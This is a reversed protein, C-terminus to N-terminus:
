QIIGGGLLREGDYFAAFQGATVARQPQEFHVAYRKGDSHITAPVAHQRYRIKATVKGDPVNALWNPQRVEMESLLLDDENKTVVLQNKEIDKKVVFYPGGPLDLGQRQGVTYYFAGEHKGLVNGQMDVIEGYRPAIYEKLFDSLKVKGVFCIGQSDRRNANPLGLKQAIQRVQAKKYEGIPFLVNKLVEPRIFALFYSQDKEKDKGELLQVDSSDRTELKTNRIERRVRAYHGTAVYDAGLKMAKEYFLGFKIEKNCMMDPNPTIGQKYGELMYDVVRHKYEAVFNWVYFPIGLHAAAVRAASEDETATCEKSLEQSWCKMHVGVVSYGAKKLLGAAVSSDVGGSMGVFVTKRKKGDM